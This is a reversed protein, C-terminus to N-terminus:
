RLLDRLSPAASMPPARSTPPAGEGPSRNAELAGLFTRRMSVLGLIVMLLRDEEAVAPTPATVPAPPPPEPLLRDLRQSLSLMGLLLPLLPNRDAFGSGPEDLLPM